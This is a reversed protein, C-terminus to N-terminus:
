ESVCTDVLCHSTAVKKYFAVSSKPTRTRNPSNFDVHYLGFVKDLIFFCRVYLSYPGNKWTCLNKYTYGQLWEFNDMLCWATYGLVKVGDDMADRVNSLYRQFDRIFNVM